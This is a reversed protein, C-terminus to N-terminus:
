SASSFLFLSASFSFSHFITILFYIIQKVIKMFSVKILLRNQKEKYLKYLLQIHLNKYVKIYFWKEIIIKIFSM